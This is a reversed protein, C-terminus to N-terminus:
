KVRVTHSTVQVRETAMNFCELIADVRAQTNAPVVLIDSNGVNLNKLSSHVTVVNGKPFKEPDYDELFVIKDYLAAIEDKLTQNYMDVLAITFNDKGFAEEGKQIVNEFNQYIQFFLEDNIKGDVSLLPVFNEQALRRFKDEEMGVCVIADAMDIRTNELHTRMILDYGIREFTKCFIRLFDYSEAKQLVSAHKDTVVIVNRSKSLAFSQALRSPQFNYLNVIQLVKRKTDTTYRNEHKGNIIYSVTAVSVGALRAIDKITIKEM